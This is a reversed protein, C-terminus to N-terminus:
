KFTSEFFSKIKSILSDIDNKLKEFLSETPTYDLFDDEETAWWFDDKLVPNITMVTEGEVAVSDNASLVTGGGTADPTEVVLEGELCHVEMKDGATVAFETNLGTVIARPSCKWWEGAEAREINVPVTFHGDQRSRFAASGKSLRVEVLQPSCYGILIESDPDLFIIGWPQDYITLHVIAKSDKDTRLGKWSPIETPSSKVREEQTGSSVYELLYVNGWYKYVEASSGKLPPRDIDSTLWSEAREWTGLYETIAVAPVGPIDASHKVDSESVSSVGNLYASAASVVWDDPFGYINGYQVDNNLHAGTKEGSNLAKMFPSESYLQEAPIRHTQHWDSAVNGLKKDIWSVGHNPTGVMILKRVDGDYDTLGHTYYRAILGGMSHGIADVKALKINSNAYDVKQKRIDNKLILSLGEIAQNTAGYDGQYTDFKEGRLYDSMKWWTATSGCFGHVLMVPPRCVLIETEIKKDQQSADKYTLTLAVEAAWVKVGSAHVNSNSSTLQNKTLYAPPYYTIEALGTPDLKVNSMADIANGELEGINPKSIEVDSCGPLSIIIGLTSVGDAAIGIFSEGTAPNKELQIGIEGVFFSTDKYVDPYGSYSATASVTYIAQTVDVPITFDCRYYGSADITASLPTGNVDIAVSAGALGGQADSVSGQIIVTEGPSYVKKDTSLALIMGIPCGTEDVTVGAPTGSCQDVDDPVGDGDSDQAVEESPPLNAMRELASRIEPWEDTYLNHEGLSYLNLWQVCVVCNAILYFHYECDFSSTVPVPNGPEVWHDRLFRDGTETIEKGQENECKYQDQDEEMRVLSCSLYEYCFSETTVSYYNSSTTPHYRGFNADTCLQKVPPENGVTPRPSEDRPPYCQSNENRWWGLRTSDAKRRGGEEYYNDLFENFRQLASEQDETNVKSIFSVDFNNEFAKKAEAVSGYELFYIDPFAYGFTYKDSSELHRSTILFQNHVIAGNQLWEQSDTDVFDYSRGPWSMVEKGWLMMETYGDAPLALEKAIAEASTKQEEAGAPMAVNMLAFVLAVVLLKVLVTNRKM